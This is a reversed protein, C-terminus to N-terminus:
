HIRRRLDGRLPAAPPALFDYQTTPGCELEHLPHAGDREAIRRLAAGMAGPDIDDEANLAAFTEFLPTTLVGGFDCVVAELASVRPCARRLARRGDPGGDALPLVRM